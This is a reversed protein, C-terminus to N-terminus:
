IIKWKKKELRELAKEYSMTNLIPKDTLLTGLEEKKEQVVEDCIDNVLDEFSLWRVYLFDDIITSFINWKNEKNKVYFRPM